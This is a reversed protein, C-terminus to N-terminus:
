SVASLTAARCEQVRPVLGRHRSLLQHVWDRRRQQSCRRDVTCPTVHFQEIKTM